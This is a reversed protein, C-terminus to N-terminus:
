QHIITANRCRQVTYYFLTWSTHVLYGVAVLFMRVCRTSVTSERGVNNGSPAGVSSCDMTGNDWQRM